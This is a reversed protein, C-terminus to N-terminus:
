CPAVAGSRARLWAHFSSASASLKSYGSTAGATKGNVPVNAAESCVTAKPDLTNRSMNGSCTTASASRNQTETDVDTTMVDFVTGNVVDMRMTRARPRPARIARCRQFQGALAWRNPAIAQVAQAESMM